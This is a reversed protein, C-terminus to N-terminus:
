KVDFAVVTPHIASKTKNLYKVYDVLGDPYHYTVKKQLKKSSDETKAPAPTNAGEEEFDDVDEDDFSTSDLQKEGSEADAIAELDLQEKTVQEDILQITLGKYLLGDEESTEHIHY